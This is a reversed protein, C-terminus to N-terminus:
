KPRLEGERLMDPVQAARMPAAFLYGQGETRASLEILQHRQAQTEVGEAVVEVGLEIALTMIARVLAAGSRDSTAAEVMPRAIKLRKVHYTRLYDLSSYETGFDDIAIRVGLRHLEELVGSQALTARALVLETVDLELDSPLLGNRRLSAKVDEALERGARVQAFGVNVAVVPVDTGADRWLRLQRCAGELVWRGLSRMLGSKEATPLFVNPLLLGRTPHNWRILAEMATIRGSSLEVQPQYYLELEDRELALRLDEALTVRERTALDLEASHFRYQGRGEEKARYLAQDAQTLLEDAGSVKNEPGYQSIGVSVGVRLENGEIPYPRSLVDIIKAALVGAVTPETTDAQLVAFEDGGLRAIVDTERMVKRLREAVAQLLHDGVPHGLTDNIEKFRDLDLYLVAFSNGGRNVAAFAQKLRDVFTSRNALGTLSDTRALRAIKEEATKRETIDIIIGEVEVLRGNQDRVPTYRNEVWRTAGDGALIRYEITTATATRELLTVMAAQVRARDEPHVHTQYLTPSELLQAAEYGLLAVNQSVYMMPFSPEGRLRFLITPSNQVITNANALEEVYRDRKIATGILGALTKLVDTDASTWEREAGCADLSIQGWYQGDVMIPVVLTSAAESELSVEPAHWSNRHVLQRAGTSDQLAELVLMRDAGVARAVRQLSDSIAEHLNPAMVIEGASLTVAHLLEDRERLQEAARERTIVAGILDAFVHLANIEDSRWEHEGGCDDFSVSGWIRGRVMIPVLLLSVLGVAELLRRMEIGSSRRSALASKGQGLPLAWEEVARVTQADAAAQYLNMRTGVGARSWSYYPRPKLEGGHFGESVLMRDIRSVQGINELVRPLVERISAATLLDAIGKTLTQLLRDRQHIEKLSRERTIAAGVVSALLQLVDIEDASWDREGQCDDIGIQGWHRGGVMIPVVLLSVAGTAAMVARVGANATARTASVARGEYLPRLWDQYEANRTAAWLKPTDLSAANPGVWGCNVERLPAGDASPTEQVVLVRDIRVLGAVRSLVQPLARELSDTALLQASGEAVAQLLSDRPAIGALAATNSLRRATSTSGGPHHSRKRKTSM